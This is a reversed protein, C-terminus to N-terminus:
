LRSQVLAFRHRFFRRDIGRRARKPRQAVPGPDRSLAYVGIADGASPQYPTEDVGLRVEFEYGALAIAGVFALQAEVHELGLERVLAVFAREFHQQLPARQLVRRQAGDRFDDMVDIELIVFEAAGFDGADSRQNFADADPGLVVRLPNRAAGLDEVAEVLIEPLFASLLLRMARRVILPAAWSTSTSGLVGSSHTNRSVIPSVPVLYPQPMTCHPAQVTWTSPMAIREHEIGNLATAPRCIM